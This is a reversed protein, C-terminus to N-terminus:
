DHIFGHFYIHIDVIIARTELDYTLFFTMGAKNLRAGSELWYSSVSSFLFLRFFPMCRRVVSFLVAQEDQCGYHM